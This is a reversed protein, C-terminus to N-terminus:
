KKLEIEIADLKALLANLQNIQSQIDARDRDIRKQDYTVPKNLYIEVDKGKVDKVITTARFIVKPSDVVKKIEDASSISTILLVALVFLLIKKM